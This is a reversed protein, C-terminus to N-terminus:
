DLILPDRERERERERERRTKSVPNRQTCSYQCRPIEGERTMRSKDRDYLLFL